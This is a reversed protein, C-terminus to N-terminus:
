SIVDEDTWFFDRDEVVFLPDGSGADTVTANVTFTNAMPTSAVQYEFELKLGDPLFGDTEFSVADGQSLNHNGGGTVGFVSNSPNVTVQKRVEVSEFSEFGSAGFTLVSLSLGNDTQYGTDWGAGTGATFTEANGGEVASFNAASLNAIAVDFSLPFTTGDWEEEFDEVGEVVTTDFTKATLPSTTAYTDDWGLEFSDFRAPIQVSGHGWGDFLQISPLEFAIAPTSGAQWNTEFNEFPKFPEVLTVSTLSSQPAAALDTGLIYIEAPDGLEFPGVPAVINENTSSAGAVRWGARAQVPTVDVEFVIEDSANWSIGSVSAVDVGDVRLIIEPTSSEFRLRNDNDVRVIDFDSYLLSAASFTVNVAISGFGGAFYRTLEAGSLGVSPAASVTFTKPAFNVVSLNSEGTFTWGRATGQFAQQFDGNATTM